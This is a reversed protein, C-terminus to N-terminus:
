KILLCFKIEVYLFKYTKKLHLYLKLNGENQKQLSKKPTCSSANSDFQKNLLLDVKVCAISPTLYQM